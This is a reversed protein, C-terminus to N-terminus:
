DFHAISFGLLSSQYHQVQNGTEVETTTYSHKFYYLYRSPPVTM